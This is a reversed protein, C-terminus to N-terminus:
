TRFQAVTGLYDAGDYFITIVDTTAVNGGITKNSNVFKINSTFTRNSGNHRLILTVSEGTQFNTLNNSNITINGTTGATQIPATNADLTVTGTLPGVNATREQYTGLTVNNLQVNGIWNQNADVNATFTNTGATVRGYVDTTVTGQYTGATGTTIPTISLTSGTLSAGITATNAVTLGSAGTTNTGGATLSIGAIYSPLFDLRLTNSSIYAGVTTTNALSLTEGPARTSSGAPASFVTGPVTASVTGAVNSMTVTSTNSFTYAVGPVINSSFSLTTWFEGGAAPGSQTAIGQITSTNAITLNSNLSVNSVVSGIRIGVNAGQLNTLNLDMENFSLASGKGTRTTIAPLAM